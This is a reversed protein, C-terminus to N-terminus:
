RPSRVQEYPNVIMGPQKEVKTELEKRIFFATAERPGNPERLTKILGNFAAFNGQCHFMYAYDELLRKVHPVYAQMKESNLLDGLFKQKREEVMYPPLVITSSGGIECFANRDDDKNGWSLTFTEFLDRSLIRDLAPAEISDPITLGYIDASKQVGGGIRASFTKMQRIEEVYRGSAAAGEEMLFGAYRPSVEVVVFPKMAGRLYEGVISRLGQADVRANAFQDLGEAFRVLGHVLVYSNRKAEFAVMAMRTGTADFNSMLGRHERKEEIKRLVSEGEIRSEEVSVGMTKLRFILRKVVKQVQKDSESPALANLFQSAAVTRVEKIESLLELKSERSLLSFAKINSQLMNIDNITSLINDM